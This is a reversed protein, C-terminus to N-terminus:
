SAQDPRVHAASASAPVALACAVAATVAVAAAGLTRHHRGRPLTAPRPWSAPGPPSGAAPSQDQVAAGAIRENASELNAWNTSSDSM